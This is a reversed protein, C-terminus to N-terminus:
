RRESDDFHSVPSAHRRCSDAAHEVAASGNHGVGLPAHARGDSREVKRRMRRRPLQEPLAGFGDAQQQGLDATVEKRRHQAADLGLQAVRPIIQQDMRGQVSASATGQRFVVGVAQENEGAAHIIRFQPPEGLDTERSHQQVASRWLAGGKGAYSDFVFGACFRDDAMQDLCVGPLANDIQAAGDGILIGGPALLAVASRQGGVAATRGPM